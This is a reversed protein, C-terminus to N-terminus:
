KKGKKGVQPINGIVAIGLKKEVEDSSKISNDFYYFIFLLMVSIAIGAVFCIGTTKVVKINYPSKQVEAKDIITVNELNYIEIVEDRFVNAVTNAIKAALEANKDSVSIKIIETDNENTVTIHSYLESYSYSLKLNEIVQNLVKKSKVIVSYTSVLKQNLVIDSQTITSKTSDTDKSVLILTTDGKYMPTKLTLTYVIGFLLFAFSIAIIISIRKLFYLFLDKLDVEEM